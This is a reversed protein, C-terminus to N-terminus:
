LKNPLLSQKKTNSHVKETWTKDFDAACTKTSKGTARMEFIAASEAFVRNAFAPASVYAAEFHLYGTIERM